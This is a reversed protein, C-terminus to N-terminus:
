KIWQQIGLEQLPAQHMTPQQYIKQQLLLEKVIHEDDDMATVEQEM